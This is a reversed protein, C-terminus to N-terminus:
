SLKIGNSLGKHIRLAQGWRKPTKNQLSKQNLEWVMMGNIREGDGIYIISRAKNEM